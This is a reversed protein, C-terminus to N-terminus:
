AALEAPTRQDLDPCPPAEASGTALARFNEFARVIQPYSLQLLTEGENPMLIRRMQCCSVAPGTRMINCVSLSWEPYHRKDTKGFYLCHVETHRADENIRAFTDALDRASGELVQMFYGACHLLMGTVGNSTNHREACESISEFLSDSAPATARSVYILRFLQMRPFGQIYPPMLRVGWNHKEALEGTENLNSIRRAAHFRPPTPRRKRFDGIADHFYAFM